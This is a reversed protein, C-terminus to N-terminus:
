RSVYHYWNIPGERWSPNQNWRRALWEPSLILEINNLKALAFCVTAHHLLVRYSPRRKRRQWAEPDFPKMGDVTDM